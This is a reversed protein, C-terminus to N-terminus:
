RGVRERLEQFYSQILTTAGADPEPTSSGAGTIMLFREDSSNLDFARWDGDGTYPELSFLRTRSEIMFTPETSYTAVWVSGDGGYLIERGNHAWVASMGEGTSVQVRTTMDPFPRVFIEPVGSSNSTYALWRGDQSISAGHENFESAVLVRDEGGGDLDVFFLDAEQQNTDGQRFLLGRGDPDFFAEMVIRPRELLAEAVGQSSGDAPVIRVHPDPPDGGEAIFAIQRGDLSWVPRRVSTSGTTLRTLPGDPLQKVWLRDVGDDPDTIILALRDDRPSLIAALYNDAPLSSDVPVALGTRDVWVLGRGGSSQGGRSYLVTGDSGVALEPTSVNVQVGEFLPIGPGTLELTGLDFPAAFVAGDTRVYMLHGTPTYWGRVVGDLLLRTTDAGFDVVGLSIGGACPGSCLAVLAGPSRPLPGAFALNTFGHDTFVAITDARGGVEPVRMLTAGPAEYLITGDDLWAVANMSAPGVASLGEALTLTSGDGLPRMKLETGAVFAISRGDPSYVVNQGGETGGLPNAESERRPKMWLRWGTEDPLAYVMSSGDPALATFAGIPRPLDASLPAITQRMLPGAGSPARVLSWAAVGLSVVAVASAAAAVRKWPGVVAAAAAAAEEGHRFTPDALARAFAQAGTFRDAPLKELAKRIAADVNPPVSRRVATASVPLGQIIKGLVAQATNGLYPPEGVLMEYLVCALAYIDSAAGVLQDGTAQEPSMYYPTGVSLGTETLRSGGAAGVALAIGFDAVLPQGRSLLINGPKIDRHVVGQDHATQLAHAVATAIGLAEDVPLQKERGVREALTEGEIYPMVYFLFRDAEGSDFLPLIHPHQLNATTKIEALFREAGVVAALEPKLVKLAVKREHRLDDALYVTAMGGEGLKREIRYRGELAANLREVVDAM